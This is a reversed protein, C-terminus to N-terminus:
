ALFSAFPTVEAAVITIGGAASSQVIGALAATSEHLSGGSQAVTDIMEHTVFCSRSATTLFIQDGTAVSEVGIFPTLDPNLGVARLLPGDPADSQTLLEAAFSSARKLWVSSNGVHAFHLFTRDARPELYVVDLTTAMDSYRPERQAVSRVLKNAAEAGIRLAEGSQGSQGLPSTMIASLTLAAARQGAGAASVGRALAVVNRQVYYADAQEDDTPGAARVVVALGLAPGDTVTTSMPLDLMQSPQREPPIATSSSFNASPQARRAFISGARGRWEYVIPWGLPQFLRSLPRRRGLVLVMMAGLFLVAIVLLWVVIIV